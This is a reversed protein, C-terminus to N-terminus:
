CAAPAGANPAASRASSRPFQASAASRFAFSNGTLSEAALNIAEPAANKHMRPATSRTWCAPAWRYSTCARNRSRESSTSSSAPVPGQSGPRRRNGAKNVRIKNSPERKAPVSSGDVALPVSQIQKPSGPPPNFVISVSIWSLAGIVLVIVASRGCSRTPSGTGAGPQPPRREAWDHRGM